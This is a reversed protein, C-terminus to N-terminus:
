QARLGLAEILCRATEQHGADQCRWAPYPDMLGGNDTHQLGFAHGLEHALYRRQWAGLAPGFDHLYITDRSKDYSGFTPAGPTDYKEVEANDTVILIRGDVPNVSVIQYGVVSRLDICLFSLSAAVDDDVHGVTLSPGCACLLLFIAKM